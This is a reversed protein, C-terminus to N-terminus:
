PQVEEFHPALARRLVLRARHLRSKFAPESLGLAQAAEENPMGEVDSLLFADRYKEPLRAVAGDILRRTEGDLAQQEPTLAWRRASAAEAIEDTPTPDHHEQRVARRRRYSLATNVVIRHLWTPFSAEGRFADLNRLVQLFVDQTVDQADAENGLMRYALGYVRPAHDRLVKEYRSDMATERM